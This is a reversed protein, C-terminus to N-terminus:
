PWCCRRGTFKERIRRDRSPNTTRGTRRTPLVEPQIETRCFGGPENSVATSTSPRWSVRTAPRSSARPLVHELFRRVFELPALSVTDRGRTRFVITDDDLAVLRTNSIAVRHTYRGLYRYVQEPGGFPRKAYVVWSKKHLRARRRRSARDDLDERLVCGAREGDGHRVSFRCDWRWGCASSPTHLTSAHLATTPLASPPISNQGHACCLSWSSTHWSSTCGLARMSNWVPKWTWFRSRALIAQSSCPPGRLWCPM